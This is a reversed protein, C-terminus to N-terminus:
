FAQGLALYFGGQRKEGPRKEGIAYDLRISSNHVLDFFYHLGAGGSLKLRSLDIKDNYVTGSGVFAAVGFRPHFRYRAEGQTALYNKNRYRGRYYGRMMEDNGLQNTLYFPVDKSFLSQYVGQFGLTVKKHLPIFARLDLSFLGGSFNDGGWFDPAYSYKARGYLGKTTETNSNRSDYSQSIGFAIYKGGYGGYVADQDFSKDQDDKEFDFNEFKINLGGYYNSLLKKDAEFNLQIYKQTLLIKDVAHTADGLGYYNFPYKKYRISTVYHYKNGTTWIDSELKLNIQKETTISTVANLNSTYISTDSKDTYFNYIGTFGFEFQTEPAYSFVPLILLRASRTSDKKNSILKQIIPHELISKQAFLSYCPTMLLCFSLLLKAILKMQRCLYPIHITLNLYNYNVKALEFM